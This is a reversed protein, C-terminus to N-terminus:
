VFKHHARGEKRRSKLMLIIGLVAASLGLILYIRPTQPMETWLTQMHELFHLLSSQLFFLSDSSYLGFYILAIGAILLILGLVQIVSM